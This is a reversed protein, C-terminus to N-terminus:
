NLQFAPLLFFLYYVGIGKQRQHTANTNDYSLPTYSGNYQRTQALFSEISSRQTGTLAIGLRSGVHEILQAPTASGSPLTLAPTWDPDAAQQATNDNLLATVWNAKELVISASLWSNQNYWFVSPALNVQMGMQQLQRQGESINVANLLGLVRATKAAFELSNVPVTDRYTPDYFAESMFLTRLSARLKYGSAHIVSGFAEVLARPPTPTVYEKLLERAYYYKAYPHHAFIGRVLDEDTEGSFSHATGVFMTHPGSQHRNAEYSAVLRNIQYNKTVKWGTLMRAAVAIDGSGDTATESYNPNGDLDTPGLTFLEMLERAYNENPNGAVNLENNLYILMLPDRTIAVGLDPMSCDEAACSRLRQYYDWFVSRFTEDEIVDGAATWVSLLFLALRETFPNNTHIWLDLLAGRQGAATHPSIAQGLKGDLHDEVHAMVGADEDKVRMFEDVLAAVGQSSALAVLGEEKASLGLGAKDLLLQVDARTLARSLPALSGSGPTPTPSPSPSERYESCATNGRAVRLKLAKLKKQLAKRTRGRAKALTAKLKKIAAAGTIYKGKSLSVYFTKEAVTACTYSAGDKIVEFVQDPTIAIAKAEPGQAELTAVSSLITLIATVIISRHKQM